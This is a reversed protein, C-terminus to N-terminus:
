KVTVTLKASMGNKLEPYASVDYRVKVNFVQEQRKDSISFVVDGANSTPSINDIVGYYKKSGFADVTFSAPQGVSLKDLGKNEGIKGVVRLESPQIMSVLTEGPGYQKGLDKQVSVITGAVPSTIVETGVRVLPTNALVEDGAQVYTDDLTGSATAGLNIIPASLMSNDIAVTSIANRVAFFIGLLSFIVVIGLISHMWPKKFVSEKKAELIEKKEPTTEM